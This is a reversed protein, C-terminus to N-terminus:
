LSKRFQGTFLAVFRLNKGARTLILSVAIPGFISVKEFRADRDIFTFFHEQQHNSIMVYARLTHM